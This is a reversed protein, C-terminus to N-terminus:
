ERSREEERRRQEEREKTGDADARIRIHRRAARLLAGWFGRNERERERRERKWEEARRRSREAEEYEPPPPPESAGEGDEPWIEVHVLEEEDSPEWRLDIELVPGRRPCKRKPIANQLFLERFAAGSESRCGESLPVGTEADVWTEIVNPPATWEARARGPRARAMMRGWVPAALRGGSAQAVIPRPDDFGIWVAAVVDPTYGVFWADAADTTTGTKGAAPAGFGAARVATGTGRDLAERLVDTVLYAVGADLVREKKPEDARWLEKGAEGRVRLVLRHPTTEGLSAFASYATALELPSVAVTGLPMAPTKDIDSRIGAERAIKAVDGLGIEHALKVTPVNKSRVLSDRMTVEGEFEADYNRPEWSRGGALKFRIPEDQLTESLYHKERLAAAYVFPKFASGLQRRASKVRDFRSERFDRGGVWALVDGSGVALAVAAGQLRPSSGNAGADGAARPPAVLRGFRGAEVDRLQRDLEQEAAFQLRSDLTTAVQMTETYLREGFREELEKRVEEVFYPALGPAAGGPPQRRVVALPAARAREALGATLLAQKQMLTLILNRRDRARDPHRRPDYAAPGRILASLLAGQSQTLKEPTTGFYHRAAADIGRAGNGFYIHSLYLELIEDKTFRDEIAYAVRIETLKRGLTRNEGQIRDPFVNRALQMTITSFGQEFGGARVNHWAAGFVRKWDLAGHRYFRQDEVALFADRVHKPIRRLPVTRGEVPRLEAFARGSRDLLRSAKGPQYSRLREVSPCGTIGCRSWLVLPLLLALSAALAVGKWTPRRADRRWLADRWRSAGGGLGRGPAPVGPTM